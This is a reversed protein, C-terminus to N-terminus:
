LLDTQEPLPEICAPGENRANSVYTSVPTLKMAEAEYPRMLHFLHDQESPLTESGDGLWEDYDDVHLIVPMRNHVDALKENPETTLLTCTELESGDAGAWHEWLGAIAFPQDDNLTVYYPQKKKGRSQWEYFGDAPVLCRRRRFASRFSPKEAVTESRANIMRAGISVDKAWSPVLGWLVHTLEREANRNLRVIAVPQSPAINYRPELYAEEDLGFLRALISPDTHLTFRGCM